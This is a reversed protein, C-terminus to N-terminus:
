NNTAEVFPYENKLEQLLADAEKEKAEVDSVEENLWSSNIGKALTSKDIKGLMEEINPIPDNGELDEALSAKIKELSMTIGKLSEPMKSQLVKLVEPDKLPNYNPDSKMKESATAIPDNQSSYIKSKCSFFSKKLFAYSNLSFSLFVLVVFFAKIM